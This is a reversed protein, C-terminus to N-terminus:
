RTLFPYSSLLLSAVAATWTRPSPSKSRPPSPFIPSLHDWPHELRVVYFRHSKAISRLPLASPTLAAGSRVPHIATGRTALLVAPPPVPKPAFVIFVTQPLGPNVDVHAHLHKLDTHGGLGHPQALDVGLGNRTQGKGSGDRFGCVRCRCVAFHLCVNRVREPSRRQPTKM